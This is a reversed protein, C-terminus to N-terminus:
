AVAALEGATAVKHVIKHRRFYDIFADRTQVPHMVSKASPTELLARLKMFHHGASRSDFSNFAILYNKSRELPRGHQIRMSAIRYDAGRGELQVEFGLLNRREHSAYVEEMVAKIEDPSLEATVIYNEYPIVNWIDNVTKPGAVLSANEDFVGHMVGDVSINRELLAETITAGILREIDSPEGPRGRAHLTQALEGIPQTVAADSEALQSKARSLVVDDLHLRNDMLECIAERGLLKKSSRDFLLDVRGV